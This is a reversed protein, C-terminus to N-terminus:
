NKWRGDQLMKEKCNRFVTEFHLRKNLWFYWYNPLNKEVWSANKILFGVLEPKSPNYFPPISCHYYGADWSHNVEIFVPEGKENEIVDMSIADLGTVAAAKEVQKVWEKNRFNDQLKLNFNVFNEAVKEFPMNMDATTANWNDGISVRAYGSVIKDGAVHIRYSFNKDSKTVIKTDIFEVCMMGSLGKTVSKNNYFDVIWDISKELDKKDKVLISGKGSSENTVRLLFPLSFNAIEVKKYFDEKSYFEFYKPCKINKENWVKFTEIKDFANKQYEIKNIIRNTNLSKLNKNLFNYYEPNCHPNSPIVFCVSDKTIKEDIIKKDKEIDVIMVKGFVSEFSEREQPRWKCWHSKIKFNM